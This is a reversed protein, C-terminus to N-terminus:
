RLTLVYSSFRTQNTEYLLYRCEPKEVLLTYILQCNKEGEMKHFGAFTKALSFLVDSEPFGFVRSFELYDEKSFFFQQGTLLERNISSLIRKFRSSVDPVKTEKFFSTKSVM